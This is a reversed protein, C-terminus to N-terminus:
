KLRATVAVKGFLVMLEYRSHVNYKRHIAKSHDRAAEPSINMKRACIKLSEGELLLPLLETQRPTLTVDLPTGPLMDALGRLLALETESAERAEWTRILVNLRNALDTM